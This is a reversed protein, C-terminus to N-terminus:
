GRLACYAPGGSRMPRRCAVYLSVLTPRCSALRDCAAEGGIADRIADIGHTPEGAGPRLERVEGIYGKGYTGVFDGRVNLCLGVPAGKRRARLSRAMQRPKLVNFSSAKLHAEMGPGNLSVFPRGSWTGVV